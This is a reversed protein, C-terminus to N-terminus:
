EKTNNMVSVPYAQIEQNERTENTIREKKSQFIVIFSISNKLDIM